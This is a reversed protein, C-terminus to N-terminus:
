QADTTEAEESLAPADGGRADPYEDEIQVSLPRMSARPASRDSGWSNAEAPHAARTAATSDDSDSNGSHSDSSDWTDSHSDSSDWIDSHSDSSHSDSDSTAAERDLESEQADLADDDDGASPGHGRVVQTYYTLFTMILVSDARNIGSNPVRRMRALYREWHGIDTIPADLARSLSHCRSCRSAFRRYPAHIPEPLTRIDLGAGAGCAGLALSTSLANVLAFTAGARARESIM